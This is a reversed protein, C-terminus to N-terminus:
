FKTPWNKCFQGSLYVYPHSYYFLCENQLQELSTATTVLKAHNPSFQCVRSKGTNEASDNWLPRSSQLASPRMLVPSLREVDVLSKTFKPGTVRANVALIQLGFLRFRIPESHAKYCMEVSHTLFCSVLSKGM